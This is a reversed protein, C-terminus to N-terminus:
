PLNNFDKGNLNEKILTTKYKRPSLGTHKKFVISFYNQNDFCLNDSIQKITLDTKLLDIAKRIKLGTVYNMIGQGYFKNFIKKMNSVSMNTLKAITELNLDEEFREHIVKLIKQFNAEASSLVNQKNPEFKSLNFRILFNELENAIIQSHLASTNSNEDYENLWNEAKHVIQSYEYTQEPNFLTCLNEFNNILDGKATFSIIRIRPMCNNIASINHFEMPKHFIVENESLKYVRDDATITVEGEVIQVIEWFNHMEGPFTFAKERTVEFATIIDCIEINKEIKYYKWDM